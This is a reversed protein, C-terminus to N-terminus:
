LESFLLIALIFKQKLNIKKFIKSFTKQFM